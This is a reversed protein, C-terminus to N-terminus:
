KNRKKIESKLWKAGNAFSVGRVLDSFDSKSHLFLKDAMEGIEEDTPMIEKLKSKHYDNAFEAIAKPTFTGINMNGGVWLKLYEEAKMVPKSEQEEVEKELAAIESELKAFDSLLVEDTNLEDRLLEIYKKLKEILKDKTEM